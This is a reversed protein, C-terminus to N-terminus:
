RIVRGSILSDIMFMFFIGYTCWVTEQQASHREHTVLKLPFTRARECILMLSKQYEFFKSVRSIM